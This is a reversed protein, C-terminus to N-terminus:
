ESTEFDLRQEIGWKFDSPVSTLFNLNTEHGDM